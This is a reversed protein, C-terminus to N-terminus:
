LGTTGLTFTGMSIPHGKTRINLSCLLVAPQGQTVREQQSEERPAPDRTHFGSWMTHTKKMGVQGDHNGQGGARGRRVQQKDMSAAKSAVTTETLEASFGYQYKHLSRDKDFIM